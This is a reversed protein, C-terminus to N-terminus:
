QLGGIHKALFLIGWIALASLIAADLVYLVIKGHNFLYYAKKNGKAPINEQPTKMFIVATWGCFCIYALIFFASLISGLGSM